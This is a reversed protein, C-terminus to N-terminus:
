AAQTHPLIKIRYLSDQLQPQHILAEYFTIFDIGALEAFARLLDMFVQSLDAVLNEEISAQSLERFLGGISIGYHTREYYSLLIYRILSLTTDAIQADFDQSQSKGLLLYQKDEKFFKHM